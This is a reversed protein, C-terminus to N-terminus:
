KIYTLYVILINQLDYFNNIGRLKKIKNYM